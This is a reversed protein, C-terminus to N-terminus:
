QFQRPLALQRPKRQRFVANARRATSSTSDAARRRTKQCLRSAILSESCGESVGTSLANRAVWRQFGRPYLVELYIGRSGKYIFPKLALAGSIVQKCPIWLMGRPSASFVRALPCAKHFARNVLAESCGKPSVRFSFFLFRWLRRTSRGM